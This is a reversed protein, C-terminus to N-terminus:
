AAAPLALLEETPQEDPEGQVQEAARMLDVATSRVQVTVDALGDIGAARSAADLALSRAEEARQPEDYSAALAWVSQALEAVAVSLGAPIERGARVSRLAHRALVRTNRVALDLQEVSRDYREVATRAAFRQPATRATERGVSLAVELDDILGDIARAQTLARAADGADGTALAAALRELSRGLEGLVAQAARGVHLVPDPPFLLAGVVFAVTGGIGAEFMRNPSFAAGSLPDLALLLLASVAAEGIVIEGGGLLVAVSMAFVVMIAIQPAGQGILAVVLTALTLGLVVGGVLQLARSRHEGHTAGLSVIAAISAFAPRTDGPVLLSALEWAAFAAVATQVIALARARLRHRAPVLHRSLATMRKVESALLRRLERM